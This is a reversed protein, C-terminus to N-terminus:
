ETYNYCVNHGMGKIPDGIFRNSVNRVIIKAQLGPNASPSYENRIPDGPFILDLWPVSFHLFGDLLGSHSWIAPLDPPPRPWKGASVRWQASQAHLRRSCFLWRGSTAWCPLRPLRYSGQTGHLACVM